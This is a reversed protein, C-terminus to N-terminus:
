KYKSGDLRRGSPKTTRRWDQSQLEKGAITWSLSLTLLRDKKRKNLVWMESGYTTISAVISHYIM